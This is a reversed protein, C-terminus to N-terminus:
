YPISAITIAQSRVCWGSSIRMTSTIDLGEPIPTTVEIPAIVDAYQLTNAALNPGLTAFENTNIKPMTPVVLEPVVLLVADDGSAGQGILTDDFAWEIEYGFEESVKTIVQATTATGAGPRQYSVVQVINQLELQLLVRQPGLIVLRVPTGALYMRALAASILGQFWVAIEGNDYTQLTTNGYSDPPLNVTTAGPTNVLGEANAANVGYLGAQRIFQFTGQRMALRQAEPLAVNYTGAEALDYENYEARCRATYTAAQIFDAVISASPLQNHVAQNAAIQTRVDIRNIYIAKDVPGLKVRLGGGALTSMYGSAQAQTIVLDPEIFSPDLILRTNFVNPM